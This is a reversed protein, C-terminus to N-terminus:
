GEIESASHRYQCFECASSPQPIIESELCVKIKGLAPEIWADSGKYSIIKVKFELKADFAAVDKDGNVYVFYATDSVTFGNGRLLWQYVEMQRKYARHFGQDTLEVEGAKATAKYDVVHLENKPTVWIDDVAGFILLDTPKHEVQVGTFNHRWQNIKEHQFPVADIGYKKMLPHASGQARHIDFEKKLLHDVASNLTFPPGSPRKVGKVKDLWFCRPCQTFLEIKTRSIKIM